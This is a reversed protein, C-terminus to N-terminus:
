EWPGKIYADITCNAAACAELAIAFGLALGALARARVGAAETCLIDGIVINGGGVNTSKLVTTKGKYQVLGWNNVAITEVVMGYTRPCSNASPVDIENGAAVAKISVVDGAVRQAGSTNKMLRYMKIQDITIGRNDDKVETLTGVDNLTATAFSDDMIDNGAVVNKNSDVDSINIGYQPKNALAGARCINGRFTNYNSNIVYIDDYTNNATQSNETCTNGEIISNDSFDDLIIGHWGNGRCTNGIVCNGSLANDLMIGSRGNDTCTNGSVTNYEAFSVALGNNTNGQCVNGHITNNDAFFVLLGTTNAMCINAALINSPSTGSIEIGVGNGTCTNASLINGTSGSICIGAHETNDPCLNNALVNNDSNVLYIGSGYTWMGYQHRRSYVNQILSDDVYEFYVGCDSVAGAGGDIQFDKVVIGTLETGAGGVATIFLLGNTSTTLITNRGCGWLTQNSDLNISVECNFTGESLKVEGGAAPLADIAAQIEVHDNVGDCIQVNFGVYRAVTGFFRVAVPATSCIVTGTSPMIFPKPLWTRLLTNSLKMSM